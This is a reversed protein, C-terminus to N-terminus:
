TVKFLKSTGLFDHEYFALGLIKIDVTGDKLPMAGFMVGLNHTLVLNGLTTYQYIKRDPDDSLERLPQTFWSSYKQQIETYLVFQNLLGSDGGVQIIADKPIALLVHKNELGCTKYFNTGDGFLWVPTGATMNLTWSNVPYSSPVTTSYKIFQPAIPMVGITAPESPYRIPKSVPFIGKAMAAAQLFFSENARMLDALSPSVKSLTANIDALCDRIAKEDEPSLIEVEVAAKGGGFIRYGKFAEEIPLSTPM